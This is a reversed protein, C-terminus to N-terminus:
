RGEAPTRGEAKFHKWAAEFGLWATDTDADMYRAFKGNERVYGLRWTSKDAKTWAEFACQAEYQEEATLRDARLATDQESM